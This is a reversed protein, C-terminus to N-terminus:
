RRDGGARGGDAPPVPCGPTAIPGSPRAEADDDRIKLHEIIAMREEHSLLPGIVGHAPGAGPSWPVYDEDFEHGTNWNGPESTDLVFWGDGEPEALGVKVPDFERSGVKFTAPRDEVPSLLDYLTPVSGNHLYPPTAWMGALPRPKYGAIVRPLDNIAFGDLSDRQVPSYGARDYALDRMMTGVYSLALGLPLAEPDLGDLRAASDAPLRALRRELDAIRADLSDRAPGGGARGREARADDIRGQLWSRTRGMWPGLNEQATARLDAATIGTRTIDIRARAFNEAAHPDTGIDDTCLIHVLWEPDDAGKGPANRAKLDADAEFPGHCQVCHQNFLDRGQAALVTDIPGFLEEPWAPPDLRRLTHEITDLNEVIVSSAFRDDPPLPRGYRDMLAYTAGVGLAEGFNRAMPQAVSANYQVWDFKWINWLPPYSVPANGVHLNGLDLNEGFVTNSIRALADTRGYGEETPYLARENWAIGGFTRIVDLLQSRLAGKGEPYTEGLVRRAFRDFKVPNGVTAIFSALMTPIFNGFSADTFAHNAQGGDVRYATIVDGRAIHLEGSHCAACTISLVVEDLQPDYHRTFGVPLQDPNAQTPPDVLFGYRRMLDPNAFREKSLPLELNVFWDYRVGRLGAGQPTYYYLQRGPTELGPGWGQEPYVVADPAEDPLMARGSTLYWSTAASLLFVLATETPTTLPTGM